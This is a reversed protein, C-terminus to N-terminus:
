YYFTVECGRQLEKNVPRALKHAHTRVEEEERGEAGIAGKGEREVSYWCVVFLLM